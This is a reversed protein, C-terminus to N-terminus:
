HRRRAPEVKFTPRGTGVTRAPEFVARIRPPWAAYRSEPVRIETTVYDAPDEGWQRVTEVAEALRAQDWEVRKPLDARIVFGDEELSVTGTDRGDQRRLAAAREGYRLQLAAQLLDDLRRADAKMAAVDELLLAIQDPPLGAAQGATMERLQALTIRNSM